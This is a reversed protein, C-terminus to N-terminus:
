IGNASDLELDLDRIRNETVSYAVVLKETM